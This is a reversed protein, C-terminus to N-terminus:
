MPSMLSPNGTIVLSTDSFSARISQTRVWRGKIITWSHVVADSISSPRRTTTFAGTELLYYGRSESRDRVRMVTCVPSGERPVGDVNCTVAEMIYRLLSLTM